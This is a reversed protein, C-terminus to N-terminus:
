KREELEKLAGECIQQIEKINKKLQTKSKKKKLDLGKFYMAGQMDGQRSCEGSLIRKIIECNVKESM